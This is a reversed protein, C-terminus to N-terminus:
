RKGNLLKKLNDWTWKYISDGTKASKPKKCDEDDRGELLFYPKDEEQTIELETSVGSAEDTYVGCIVVVQDVKKIRERAKEKWDGSLEEKISFDSIEFPSEENKSQGILLNKLNIDHDYDFSVFVKVKNNKQTYFYNYM